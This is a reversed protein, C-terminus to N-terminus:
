SYGISGLLDSQVNLIDSRFRALMHLHDVRDHIYHLTCHNASTRFFWKCMVNAIQFQLTCYDASTGFLWKCTVIVIPVMIFHLTCRNALAVIFWKWTVNWKINCKVKCHEPGSQTGVSRVSRTLRLTQFIRCKMSNPRDPSKCKRARRTSPGSRSPKRSPRTLLELVTCRAPRILVWSPYQGVREWHQTYTVSAELGARTHKPVAALKFNTDVKCIPIHSTTITTPLINIARRLDCM